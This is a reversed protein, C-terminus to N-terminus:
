TKPGTGQFGAVMRFLFKPWMSHDHQPNWTAALRPTLPRYIIEPRLRNTDWGLDWDTHVSILWGQQARELKM